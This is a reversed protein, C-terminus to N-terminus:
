LGITLSMNLDLTAFCSIQYAFYSCRYLFSETFLLEVQLSLPVLLVAQLAKMKMHFNWMLVQLVKQFIDSSNQLQCVLELVLRCVLTLRKYSVELIFNFTAHQNGLFLYQHFFRRWYTQLISNAISRGSHTSM